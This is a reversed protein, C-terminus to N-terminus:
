KEEMTELLGQSMSTYCHRESYLQHQPYVKISGEQLLIRRTLRGSTKIEPGHRNRIPEYVECRPKLFIM